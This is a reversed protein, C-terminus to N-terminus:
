ETTQSKKDSKECTQWKKKWQNTVKQSKEKALKHSKTVKKESTQTKKCYNTVKKSKKLSTKSKNQVLKGSKTLKKESTQWKKQKKEM